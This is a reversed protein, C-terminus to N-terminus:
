LRTIHTVELTRVAMYPKVVPDEAAGSQEERMDDNGMTDASRSADGNSMANGHWNFNAGGNSPRRQQTYRQSQYEPTEYPAAAAATTQAGYYPASSSANQAQYNRSQTAQPAQRHPHVSSYPLSYTFNENSM